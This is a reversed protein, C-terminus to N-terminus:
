EEDLYIVQYGKGGESKVEVANVSEMGYLYEILDAQFEEPNEGTYLFEVKYEGQRQRTVAQLLEKLEELDKVRLPLGDDTGMRGYVDYTETELKAAVDLHKQPMYGWEEGYPTAASALLMSYNPLIRGLSASANQQGYTSCSVYWKGDLQVMNWAHDATGSVGTTRYCPIDIMNLLLAYAKTKGDCVACHNLFVGELYYAQERVLYTESSYATERDYVVETTLFDYVAKIKQFDSQEPRIRERIVSKAEDYLRQAVSGAVPVPRYGNMALYYLQEGNECPIEPKGSQELPIPAGGDGSLTYDFSPVVPTDPIEVPTQSAVDRSMSYKVGVVKFQSYYSDDLQCAYVDALDAQQYAKQFEPYPNFFREAYTPDIDFYVEDGIRYFAMYDLAYIFDDLNSLCRAPRPLAEEALGDAFLRGECFQAYLDPAATEESPKAEGQGCACLALIVLVSLFLIVARKM